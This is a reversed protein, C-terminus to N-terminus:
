ANYQTASDLIQVPIVEGSDGAKLAKAIFQIVDGATHATPYMIGTIAQNELIAGVTVTDGLKALAEGFCIIEGEGNAAINQDKVFGAFKQVNNNAAPNTVHGESTWVVMQYASVAADATVRKVANSDVVYGPNSQTM